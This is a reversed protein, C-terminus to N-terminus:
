PNNLEADGADNKRQEDREEDSKRLDVKRGTGTEEIRGSVPLRGGVAGKAGQSVATQWPEALEQQQNQRHQQREAEDFSKSAQFRAAHDKAEQEDTGQEARDQEDIVRQLAMEAAGPWGRHLLEAAGLLERRGEHRGVLALSVAREDTAVDGRCREDHGEAPESRRGHTPAPQDGAQGEGAVEGPNAHRGAPM